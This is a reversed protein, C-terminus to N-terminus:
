EVAKKSFVCGCYNQRYLNYKHSLEVSRKYGNKKKFDTPLYSTGIEQSLADGIDNILRANKLPSITLTTAFYACGYKKAALATKRLRMDFCVACRSGGEKENELGSIRGLYQEPEYDTPTITVDDQLGMENVLRLVESFRYDYEDRETINPNYYLIYISFYPSLYELVYSLCCACCAHLMLKPKINESKNKQILMDLEKQYNINNM